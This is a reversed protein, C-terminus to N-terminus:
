SQISSSGGLKYGTFPDCTAQEGAFPYAGTLSAANHSLVAPLLPAAPDPFSLALLQPDICIDKSPFSQIRGPQGNLVAESEVSPVLLSVDRSSTPATAINPYWSAQNTASFSPYTNTPGPFLTQAMSGLYSADFTSMSPPLANSSYKSSSQSTSASYLSPTSTSAFSVDLHLAESSAVSVSPAIHPFWELFMSAGPIVVGSIESALPQTDTANTQITPPLASTSPHYSPHEPDFADHADGTDDDETQRTKGESSNSAPIPDPLPTVPHIIIDKSPVDPHHHGCHKVISSLSRVPKYKGLCLRCRYM